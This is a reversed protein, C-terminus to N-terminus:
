WAASRLGLRASADGGAMAAKMLQAASSPGESKGMSTYWRRGQEESMMKEERNERSNVLIYYENRPSGLCLNRYQHSQSFRSIYQMLRSHSPNRATGPM